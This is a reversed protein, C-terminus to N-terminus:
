DKPAEQGIEEWNNFVNEDQKSPTTQGSSEARSSFVFCILAGALELFALVAATTTQDQGFYQLLQTQGKADLGIQRAVARTQARAAASVAKEYKQVQASNFAEVGISRLGNHALYGANAAMFVAMIIKMLVEGPVDKRFFDLMVLGAIAASATVWVGMKVGYVEFSAWGIGGILIAYIALFVLWDSVSRQTSM